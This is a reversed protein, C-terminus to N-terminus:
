TPRKYRERIRAELRRLAGLFREGQERERAARSRVSSVFVVIGGVMAAFAALGV